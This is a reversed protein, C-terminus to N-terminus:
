PLIEKLLGYSSRMAERTEQDFSLDDKHSTFRLWDKISATAMWTGFLHGTYQKEVAWGLKFRTDRAFSLHVAPSQNAFVMTINLWHYAWTENRDVCIKGLNDLSLNNKNAYTLVASLGLAQQLSDKLRETSVKNGCWLLDYTAPRRIFPFGGVACITVPPLLEGLEWIRDVINESKLCSLEYNLDIFKNM